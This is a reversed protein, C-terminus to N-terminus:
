KLKKNQVRVLLPSLEPKVWKTLKSLGFKDKFGSSLVFRLSTKFDTMTLLPNVLIHFSIKHPDGIYFNFGETASESNLQLVFRFEKEYSFVADKRFSPYKMKVKLLKGADASILNKYKVNGYISKKLNAPTPSTSEKILNIFDNKVFRLAYKRREKDTKAYTDWFALSEHTSVHFCSILHKKQRVKIDPIRFSTGTFDNISLCEMKDGFKDSRAFWINGTKLFRQLNDESLFKFLYKGEVGNADYAEWTM